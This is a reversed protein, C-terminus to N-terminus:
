HRQALRDQHAPGAVLRMVAHGLVMIGVYAAADAFIPTVGPTFVIWEPYKSAILYDRPPGILAVAVLFVTFGRRGFRRTVRWSVLYIPACSIAASIYFLILVGAKSPLSARWLGFVDGLIFAILLLCGGVAGGAMAGGIRRLTPRTFYIVVVLEALYACIIVILQQLTM